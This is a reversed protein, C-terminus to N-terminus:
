AASRTIRRPGLRGKLFLEPRAQRYANVIWYGVAAGALTGLLAGGSLVNFSTSALAEPHAKMAATFPISSWRVMWAVMGITGDLIEDFRLQGLIPSSPRFLYSVFGGLIAGFSSFGLIDTWHWFPTRSRHLERAM